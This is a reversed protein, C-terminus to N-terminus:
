FMYDPELGLLGTFSEEAAEYDGAEIRANVEDVVDVLIERAEELSAGDRQMLVKIIAKVQM